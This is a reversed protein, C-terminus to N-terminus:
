VECTRPGEGSGTGCGCDCKNRTSRSGRQAGSREVAVFVPCYESAAGPHGNEAYHEARIPIMLLWTRGRETVEGIEDALRQMTNGEMQDGVVEMRIIPV